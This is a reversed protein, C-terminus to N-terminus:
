AARDTTPASLLYANVISDAHCGYHVGAKLATVDDEDRGSGEGGLM